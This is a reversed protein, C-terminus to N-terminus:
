EEVARCQKRYHYLIQSPADSTYRVESTSYTIHCFCNLASLQLVKATHYFTRTEFLETHQKM